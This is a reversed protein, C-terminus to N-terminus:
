AGDPSWHLQIELWQSEQWWTDLVSVLRRSLGATTLSRWPCGDLFGTLVAIREDQRAADVRPGTTLPSVAPGLAALLAGNSGCLDHPLLP